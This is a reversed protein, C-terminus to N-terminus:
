DRSIVCRKGTSGSSCSAISNGGTQLRRVPAPHDKQAPDSTQAKQGGGSLFGTVIGWFGGSGNQESTDADAAALVAQESAQLEEVAKAHAEKQAGDDGFGIERLAMTMAMESANGSTLANEAARGRRKILDTRIDIMKGAMEKQLALDIEPADKGVYPLPRPLLANLGDYDIKNLIERVAEEPANSRVILKVEAGFGMTASLRLFRPQNDPDFSGTKGFAVGQIVGWGDTKSMGSLNGEVINMASTTLSNGKREPSFWARVSVLENGRQYVWTEANLRNKRANEDAAAMAKLLPTTDVLEQTAKSIEHPPNSIPSNDGEDWARRQWGEPAQPLYIRAGSKQREKLASLVRDNARDRKVGEIRDKITDIYGSATLEGLGVEQKLSQQYYDAGTGVILLVFAFGIASKNIM